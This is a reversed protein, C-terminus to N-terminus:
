QAFHACVFCIVVFCLITIGRVHCLLWFHPKKHDEHIAPNFTFIGPKVPEADLVLGHNTVHGDENLLSVTDGAKFKQKIDDKPDDVEQKGDHETDTSDSDSDVPKPKKQKNNRARVKNCHTQLLGDFTRVSWGCINYGAMAMSVKDDDKAAKGWSENYNVLGAKEWDRFLGDRRQQYKAMTDTVPVNLPRACCLM